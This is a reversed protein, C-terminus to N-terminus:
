RAVRDTNSKRFNTPHFITPARRIPGACLSHLLREHEHLQAFKSSRHLTHSFNDDRASRSIECLCLRASKTELTIWAEYSLDKAPASSSMWSSRRVEHRCRM